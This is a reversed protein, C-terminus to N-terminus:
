HSGNSGNSGNGNQEHSEVEIARSALYAEAGAILVDVGEDDSLAGTLTDRWVLETPLRRGYRNELVWRLAQYHPLTRKTTTNREVIRWGAPTGTRQDGTSSPDEVMKVIQTTESLGGNALAAMAEHFKAEGEARAHELQHSFVILDRQYPTLKHQPNTMALEEARAAESLWGHVTSLGCGARLVSTDYPIGAAVWALIRDRTTVPLGQEDRGIQRNLRSPQGPKGGRSM